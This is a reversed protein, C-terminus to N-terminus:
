RQMVKQRHFIVWIVIPAGILANVSNIPLNGEFGPLKSILNCFLALSAGSLISAPILIRHNSTKLFFRAIHPIALGIFAIPGCFATVVATLFGSILIIIFNSRKINLGLNEAYRDGLLYLNLPKSICFSLILGAIICISFFPLQSKSVASFSGLGWIVYSHIDEKSSLYKLIDTVSSAIYAIM